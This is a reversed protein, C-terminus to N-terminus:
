DSFETEGNPRIEKIRDHLRKYDGIKNEDTDPITYGDGDKQNDGHKEVLEKLKTLEQGTPMWYSYKHESRTNEPLSTISRTCPVEEVWEYEFYVVRESATWCADDEPITISFQEQGAQEGIRKLENSLREFKDAHKTINGILESKGITDGAIGLAPGIYPVGSLASLTAGVGATASTPVDNGAIETTVKNLLEGAQVLQLEVWKSSTTELRFYFHMTGWFLTDEYGYSGLKTVKYCRDQLHFYYIDETFTLYKDPRVIKTNKPDWELELRGGFGIVWRPVTGSRWWDSVKEAYVDFCSM